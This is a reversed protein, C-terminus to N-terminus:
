ISQSYTAQGNLAEQLQYSEDLLGDMAWLTHYITAHDLETDSSVFESAYMLCALVGKLKNFREELGDKIALPDAAPNLIFLKGM